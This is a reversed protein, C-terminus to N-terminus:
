RDFSCFLASLLATNMTQLRPRSLLAFVIGTEHNNTVKNDKAAKTCPLTVSKQLALFEHV